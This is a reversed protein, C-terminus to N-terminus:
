REDCNHKEYQSIIRSYGLLDDRMIRDYKQGDVFQKAEDSPEHYDVVTFDDYRGSIMISRKGDEPVNTVNVVSDYGESLMMEDTQAVQNISFPCHRRLMEDSGHVQIGIVETTIGLREYMGTSSIGTKISQILPTRRAAKMYTGEIVLYSGALRDGIKRPADALENIVCADVLANSVSTSVIMDNMYMAPTEGQFQWMDIVDIINEGGVADFLSAILTTKGVHPAGCVVLIRFPENKDNTNESIRAAM